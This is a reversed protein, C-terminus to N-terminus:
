EASLFDSIASVQNQFFETGAIQSSIGVQCLLKGRSSDFGLEVQIRKLGAKIFVRPITVFIFHARSQSLQFECLAMQSHLYISKTTVLLYILLSM